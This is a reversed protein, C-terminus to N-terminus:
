TLIFRCHSFSPDANILMATGGFACSGGNRKNKQWYSNFAYSAHAVVTDPYYCSGHPRIAGCNAGGEGCAYDMAEQLTEAPVSPKAVCWLQIKEGEPAPVIPAYRPSHNPNCPPLNPSEYYPPSAPSVLPPLEPPPLPIHPGFAPVSYSVPSHTPNLPSPSLPTPRPPFPYTGVSSLRRLNIHKSEKAAIKLLNIKGVSPLGLKKVWQTHLSVSFLADETPSPNISYSYNTNELFNLLSIILTQSSFPSLRLCDSSLSPSVEIERELGWRVLSHHLNRLSPLVSGAVHGATQNCLM